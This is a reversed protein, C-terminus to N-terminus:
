AVEIIRLQGQGAAMKFQLVVDPSIPLETIGNHYVYASTGDKSYKPLLIGQLTVDTWDAVEGSPGCYVEGSALSTLNQIIMRKRTGNTIATTHHTITSSVNHHSVKIQKDGPALLRLLYQMESM